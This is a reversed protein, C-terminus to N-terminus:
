WSADFVEFIQSFRGQDELKLQEEFREDVPVSPSM